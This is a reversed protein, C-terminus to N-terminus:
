PSLHQQFCNAFFLKPMTICDYGYMCGSIDSQRELFDSVVGSAAKNIFLPTSLQLRILFMPETSTAADSRSVLQQDHTHRVSPHSPFVAAQCSFMLLILSQEPVLLVQIYGHGIRDLDSLQNLERWDEVTRTRRHCGVRTMKCQCHALRTLCSM